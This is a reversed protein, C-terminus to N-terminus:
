TAMPYVDRISFTMQPFGQSKMNLTSSNLNHNKLPKTLEIHLKPLSLIILFHFQTYFERLICIYLKYAKM